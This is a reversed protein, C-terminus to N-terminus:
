LDCLHEYDFKAQHNILNGMAMKVLFNKYKEV